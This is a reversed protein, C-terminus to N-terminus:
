FFEERCILGGLLAFLLSVLGSQLATVSFVRVIHDNNSQRNWNAAMKAGLWAMMAVGTGSIDFAVLLTFFIRELLGTIIPLIDRKLIQEEPQSIPIKEGIIKKLYSRRWNRFYYAALHGVPLSVTLGISWQLLAPTCNNHLFLRLYGTYHLMFVVLSIASIVWMIKNIIPISGRPAKREPQSKEDM